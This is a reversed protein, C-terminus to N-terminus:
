GKFIKDNEQKAKILALTLVELEDETLAVAKGMLSIQAKPNDRTGDGWGVTIPKGAATVFTLSRRAADDSEEEAFEWQYQPHRALYEDTMIFNEHADDDLMRFSGRIEPNMKSDRGGLEIVEALGSSYMDTGRWYAGTLRIRDGVKLSDRSREPKVIEAGWSGYYLNEPNTVAFWTTHSADYFHPDGKEDVKHVEYVEGKKPANYENQPDEWSKGTLRIKDGVKVEVGM